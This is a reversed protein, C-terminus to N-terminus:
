VKQTCKQPQEGEGISRFLDFTMGTQTGHKFTLHWAPSNHILASNFKLLHVETSPRPASARAYLPPSLRCLIVCFSSFSSLLRGQGGVTCGDNAHLECGKPFPWWSKGAHVRKWSPSVKLFLQLEQTQTQQLIDPQLHKFVAVCLYVQYDPGMLVCTCLYHCVEPWDLYNWFCQALWHLCMQPPLVAPLCAHSWGSTPESGETNSAHPSAMLVPTEPFGTVM